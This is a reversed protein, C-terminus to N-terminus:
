KDGGESKETTPTLHLIGSEFLKEIVLYVEYHSLDEYKGTLAVYGYANAVSDFYIYVDLSTSLFKEKSRAVLADKLEVMKASYEIEM